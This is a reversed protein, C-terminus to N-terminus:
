NFDPLSQWYAYLNPHTDKYSPDTFASAFSEAFTEQLGANGAQKQYDSLQNLDATRAQLFADPYDAEGRLNDLVHGVEHLVVNTSGHNNLRPTGSDHDVTAIVAQKGSAVGTVNDWTAGPPWGRPQVGALEPFFETISNRVVVVEAGGKALMEQYKEPIKALEASVLEADQADATGEVRVTPTSPQTDPTLLEKAIEKVAKAINGVVEGIAKAAKGVVEGIANTAKGIVEGTAKVAEGVYAKAENLRSGMAKSVENMKGIGSEFVDKAKDVLAGKAENAKDVLAGKAENAKDVLAGKAENAKDVLAGKAENAKDVLAGKAENAKNKVASVTDQIAKLPNFSIVM